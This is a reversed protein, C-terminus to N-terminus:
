SERSRKSEDSVESYRLLFRGFLLALLLFLGLCLLSGIGANAGGQAELLANLFGWGAFVVPATVVLFLLLAALLKGETSGGHERQGQM